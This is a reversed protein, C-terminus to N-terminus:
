TSEELQVRGTDLDIATRLAWDDGEGAAGDRGVRVARLRGTVHFRLVHRGSGCPAEPTVRLSAADLRPEFRALTAALEAALAGPDLSGAPRGALPPLGFGLVGADADLPRTTNLLDELDRLVAHRWGGGPGGGSVRPGGCPPELRAAVRHRLTPRPATVGWPHRARM